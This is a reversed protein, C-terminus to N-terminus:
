SVCPFNRGSKQAYPVRERLVNTAYTSQTHGFMAVILRCVDSRPPM